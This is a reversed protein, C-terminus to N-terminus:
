YPQLIFINNMAKFMCYHVIYLHIYLMYMYIPVNGCSFHCLTLILVPDTTYNNTHEGLTHYITPALEPRTFGFIIFNTTTTEESDSLM